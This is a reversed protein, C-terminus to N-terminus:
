GRRQTQQSYHSARTEITAAQTRNTVGLKRFLNSTYNKVTKEALFLEEGIQRNTKGEGIRQLIVRERPTLDSLGGLGSAELRKVALRVEGEDLLTEGAALRLVAATLDQGGIEKLVYGAAGALAADVLAQDDTVSTLVLCAVDPISSRIDRCLEIGNGDPLQIDIIAITPGVARIAGLSGSFQGTEGVVEIKGTAELIQRLGRRVVEHDEVIFVSAQRDRHGEM